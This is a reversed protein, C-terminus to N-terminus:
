GPVNLNLLVVHAGHVGNLEEGALLVLASLQVQLRPYKAGHGGHGSAAVNAANSRHFSMVARAMARVGPRACSAVSAVRSVLGPTLVATYSEDAPM